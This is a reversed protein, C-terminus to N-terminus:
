FQSKRERASRPWGHCRPSLIDGSVSLSLDSRQGYFNGKGSSRQVSKPQIADKAQGALGAKVADLDHHVVAQVRAVRSIQAVKLTPMPQRDQAQMTWEGEDRHITFEDARVLDTGMPNSCYFCNKPCREGLTLCLRGGLLCHRCGEPLFHAWVNHDPKIEERHGGLLRQWIQSARDPTLEDRHNTENSDSSM